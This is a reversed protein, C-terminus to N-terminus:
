FPCFRTAVICHEQKKGDPTDHTHIDLKAEVLIRQGAEIHQQAFISAPQWAKVKFYNKPKSANSRPSELTFNVITDGNINSFLIDDCVIGSIYLKNILPLPANQSM